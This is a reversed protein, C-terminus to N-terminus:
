RKEIKTRLLSSSIGETHSLFEIRAGYKKFEIEYKNYLPTGKWEDGHFMVDFHYSRLFNVKNMDTQPVVEDVYKISKVIRIREKFPVIPTKNKYNQVCEDTSVGVVLFDCKEKARRLLNLHGIHFMDYVGTTYGILDDNNLPRTPIKYDENFFNPLLTESLSQTAFYDYLSAEPSFTGILNKLLGTNGTYNDALFFAEFPNSDQKFLERIDKIVMVNSLGRVSQIINLRNEYPIIIDSCALTSGINDDLVVITLHDTISNISSIIKLHLGTFLDFNGILCINKYRSM